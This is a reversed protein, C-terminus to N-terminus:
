LLQHSSGVPERDVVGPAIREVPYREPKVEEAFLPGKGDLPHGLANVVRGILETGVDVSLIRGHHTVKDGEKVAHADGLIIAGVSDQELNFAVGEVIGKSTEFELMEQMAVKALGSIRAIGDGVEVVVGIKQARIDRRTGELEQKLTDIIHSM